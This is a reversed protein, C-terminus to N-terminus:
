LYFHVIDGDTSHPLLLTCYRWRNFSATFTYLIEMQQILCYFHIIDGDTSHPLLLTCYRWRNFSATFTYLIEMQQILCYFKLLTSCLVDCTNNGACSGRPSAMLDHVRFVRCAAHTLPIIYVHSANMRQCM